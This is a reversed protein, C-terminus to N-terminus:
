RSTRAFITGVAKRRTASLSRSFIRVVQAFGFGKLKEFTEPKTDILWVQLLVKGDTVQQAVDEPLM